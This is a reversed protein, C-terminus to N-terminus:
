ILGVADGLCDSPILVAAESSHNAVENQLRRFPRFACGNLHTIIPKGGETAGRGHGALVDLSEIVFLLTQRSSELTRIANAVGSCLRFARAAAHNRVPCRNAVQGMVCPASKRKWRREPTSAVGSDAFSRSLDM